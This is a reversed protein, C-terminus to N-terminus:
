RDLSTPPHRQQPMPHKADNHLCKQANYNRPMRSYRNLFCAFAPMASFVYHVFVFRSWLSRQTSIWKCVTAISSTDKCILLVKGANGLPGPGQAEPHACEPSRFDRVRPLGIKPLRSRSGSMQPRPAPHTCPHAGRCSRSPFPTLIPNLYNPVKM